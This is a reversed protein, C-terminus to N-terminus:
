RCRPPASAPPAGYLGNDPSKGRDKFRRLINGSALDLRGSFLLRGHGFRADFALKSRDEGGIHDAVAPVHLGVLPLRKGTKLGKAFPHDVRDNGAM